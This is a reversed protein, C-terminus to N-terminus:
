PRVPPDPETRRRPSLLWLLLAGALAYAALLEAIFAASM